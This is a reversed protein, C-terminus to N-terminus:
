PDFLYLLFLHIKNIGRILEHLEPAELNESYNNLSGIMFLLCNLQLKTELRQITDLKKFQKIVSNTKYM